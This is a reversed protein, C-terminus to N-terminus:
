VKIYSHYYKRMNIRQLNWKQDIKDFFIFSFMYFWTNSVVLRLTLCIWDFFPSFNNLNVWYESEIDWLKKDNFLLRQYAFMGLFGDKWSSFCLFITLALRICVFVLFNDEWCPFWRFNSLFVDEWNPFWRFARYSRAAARSTFVCINYWTLM